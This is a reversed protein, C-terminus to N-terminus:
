LLPKIYLPHGCNHHGLCYVLSITEEFWAVGVCPWLIYGWVMPICLIFSDYMNGLIVENLTSLPYNFVCRHVLVTCM